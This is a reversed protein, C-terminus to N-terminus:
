YITLYFSGGIWYICFVSASLFLVSNSSIQIRCAQMYTHSTEVANLCSVPAFETAQCKEVFNNMSIRGLRRHQWNPFEVVTFFPSTHAKWVDRANSFWKASSREVSTRPGQWTTLVRRLHVGCGAPERPWVMEWFSLVVAVFADTLQIDWMWEQCQWDIRYCQLDIRYSSSLRASCGTCTYDFTISLNFVNGCGGLCRKSARTAYRAELNIVLSSSM